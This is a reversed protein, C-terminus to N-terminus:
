MRSMRQIKKKINKQLAVKQIMTAAEDRRRNVIMSRFYNKIINAAVFQIDNDEEMRDTMFENTPVRMPLMQEEEKDIVNTFCFNHLYYM